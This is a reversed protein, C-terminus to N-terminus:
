KQYMKFHQFIGFLFNVHVDECAVHACIREMFFQSTQSAYFLCNPALFYPKKHSMTQRKQVLWMKKQSVTRVCM